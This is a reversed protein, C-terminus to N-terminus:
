PLSEAKFQYSDLGAAKTRLLPAAERRLHHNFFARSYDTMLKANGHKVCETTTKGVSILNTWAFHTEKNLVLDYKPGQLATYVPPLFPTIGFDLTGGQLMVPTEISRLNTGRLYPLSYPSLVLAARIRPERWSEWAGLM